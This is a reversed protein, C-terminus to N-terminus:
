WTAWFYLLVPRGQFDALSVQQGALTPLTFTSAAVGDLPIVDLARLRANLDGASATSPGSGPPGSPVPLTGGGMWLAVLALGLGSILLVIAGTRTM